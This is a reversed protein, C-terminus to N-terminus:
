KQIEEFPRQLINIKAKLCKERTLLREPTNNEAHTEATRKREKKLSEYADNETERLLKEYYRPIKLKKGKCTIFDSPFCDTSYKEYWDKGIAPKLSMTAYEPELEHIVEDDDIKEYHRLGTNEDIKEALRGNIKKMCYRAVYAASEWTVEGILCFGHGWLKELEESKYLDCGNQTKWHKRDPFDVNFLCAHYHPRQLKDGYEGCM